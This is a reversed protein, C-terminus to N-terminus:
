GSSAAQDQLIDYLVDAQLKGFRPPLANGVMLAMSARPIDLPLLYDSPFTQLLMAERISISRNEVPHLFRGKSPNHCGGTITPAVDDWAMRGYVDHFGVNKEQHCRLAFEAPLEARSGGDKPILSIMKSIREGHHSYIKHMSDKTSVVSELNGIAERVSVFAGQPSPLAPHGIKSALLVFRKRRQPVSYECANLVGCDYDYGLVRLKKKFRDMLYYNEIAPVNELLVTKPELEEILRLFELILHNREDHRPMRKNRRRISSFGQCPPCGALLDLSTIGLEKKIQSGTITKIDQEYVRTQKHNLRYARAANADIEVAAVVDFGAEELGCSLGGCGSFLDIATPLPKERM